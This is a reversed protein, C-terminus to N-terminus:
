GVNLAHRVFRLCSRVEKRMQLKFWAEQVHHFHNYLYVDAGYFIARKRNELWCLTPHKDPLSEIDHMIRIAFEGLRGRYIEVRRILLEHMSDWNASLDYFLKMLKDSTMKDTRITYKDFGVSEAFDLCKPRYEVSIFPTFTLAAFVISHLKEGILMHCSSLFDLVSQVCAWKEFIEVRAAKSM